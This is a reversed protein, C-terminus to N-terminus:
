TTLKMVMKLSYIEAINYPLMNTDANIGAYKNLMRVYFATVNCSIRWCVGNSQFKIHFYWM